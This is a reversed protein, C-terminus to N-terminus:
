LGKKIKQVIKKLIFDPECSSGDNKHFCAPEGMNKAHKARLFGTKCANIRGEIRGPLRKARLKRQAFRTGLNVDFKRRMRRFKKAFM